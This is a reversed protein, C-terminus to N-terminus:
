PNVVGQNTTITLELNGAWAPQSSIVGATQQTFWMPTFPVSNTDAGTGGTGNPLLTRTGSTKLDISPVYSAPNVTMGQNILNYLFQGTPKFNLTGGGAYPTTVTAVISTLEGWTIFQHQCLAGCSTPWAVDVTYKAYSFLPADTPGNSVATWQRTGTCNTCNFKPAPHGKLYLRQGSTFTPFGGGVGCMTTAGVCNTTIYQNTADQTVDLVQYIYGAAVSTGNKTGSWYLNAGPVAWGNSGHTNPITIVGAAMTASYPTGAQDQIAWTSGTLIGEAVPGAINIPGNMTCNVCSWSDNRGFAALGIFVDGSSTVAVNNLSMNRGSGSLLNITSDTIITNRPSGSQYHLKYVNANQLYANVIVKDMELNCGATLWDGGIMYWNINQTPYGCLQNVGNWTIDRYTFKVGQGNTLQYQSYFTGGRYEWEGDFWSPLAYLTAPGGCDAEGSGGPCNLPWTSLYDNTLPRDLNIVGSGACSAVSTVKAYDFFGPNIPYGYGAAVKYVGQTDYGTMVAYNGVIFRSCLATDLLTVSTAGISASATRASCGSADTIGRHCVGDSAGLFFLAGGAQRVSAGSFNMLFKRIGKSWRNGGWSCDFGYTPTGCSPDMTAPTLSAATFLQCGKGSPVYMEILGSFSAQWTLNAWQSFQSFALADDTGYDIDVSTPGFITGTNALVINQSDTVSAITTTNNPLGAGVIYITKNADTLTNFTPASVNLYKAGGVGSTLTATRTVLLRDGNCAAPAAACTGAGVGTAVGTTIDCIVDGRPLASPLYTQPMFFAAQHAADRLSGIEPFLVASVHASAGSSLGVLAVLALIRKQMKLV